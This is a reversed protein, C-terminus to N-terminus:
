TSILRCAYQRALLREKGNLGACCDLQRLWDERAAEGKVLVGIRNHYRKHSFSYMRFEKGACEQILPVATQLEARDAFNIALVGNASLNRTLLGAWDADIKFARSAQGCDHGFLDDVIYDFPPGRYAALWRRADSRHLKETVGFHERAIRIHVPDLEVGLILKPKVMARLQRIVAGGGVGLVLIRQPRAELFFVPVALLDWLAGGLVARSNWQSHFVRNTYLRISRGATRVEYLTDNSRHQWVVAM